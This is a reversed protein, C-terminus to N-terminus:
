AKPKSRMLQLRGAWGRVGIEYDEVSDFIRSVTSTNRGIKKAVTRMSPVAKTEMFIEAGTFLIRYKLERARRAKELAPIGNSLVLRMLYHLEPIPQYCDYREMGDFTALIFMRIAARSPELNRGILHTEGMKELENAKELHQLIQICVSRICHLNGDMCGALENGSIGFASFIEETAEVFELGGFEALTRYQYGKLKESMELFAPIGSLQHNLMVFGQEVKEDFILYGNRFAEIPDDNM